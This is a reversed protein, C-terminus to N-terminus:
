SLIEFDKVKVKVELDSIHTMTTCCLVESWYRVEPLTDVPDIWPNLLHLSKFVKVLFTKIDLDSIHTKLGTDLM